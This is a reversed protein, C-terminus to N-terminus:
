DIDMEDDPASLPTVEPRARSVVQKKEKFQKIKRSLVEVAIDTAEEFTSGKESVFLTNGPVNLKM